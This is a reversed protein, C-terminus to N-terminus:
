TPFIVFPLARIVIKKKGHRKLSTGKRVDRSVFLRRRFERRVRPMLQFCDLSYHCTLSCLQIFCACFVPLSEIDAVVFNARTFMM